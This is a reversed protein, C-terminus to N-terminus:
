DLTCLGQEEKFRRPNNYSNNCIYHRNEIINRFASQVGSSTHTTPPCGLGIGKSLEYGSNFNGVWQFVTRGGPAAEGCVAEVRHHIDAASVGEKRLFWTTWRQGYHDDEM